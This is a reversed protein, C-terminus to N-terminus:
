EGDQYWQSTWDRGLLEELGHNAERLFQNLSRKTMPHIPPGKRVVGGSVLAMAAIKAFYGSERIKAMASNRNEGLERAYRGSELGSMARSALLWTPLFRPYRGPNSKIGVSRLLIAVSEAPLGLFSVLRTLELEPKAFVKEYCLFLVRDSFAHKLRRVQDVYVSRDLIEQRGKLLEREFRYSARGTRVLHWYHSYARDIPNRLMVVLRTGPMEEAVRVMNVRSHFLTTSDYGLLGDQNSANGGEGFWEDRSPNALSLGQSRVSQFEPHAMPDMADIYHVEKRPIYVGPLEILANHLWTTGSKMAGAIIFDPDRMM